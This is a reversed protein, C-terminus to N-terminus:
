VVEVPHEFRQVEGSDDKVEISLRMRGDVRMTTAVVTRARGQDIMPQLAEEAYQRAQMAVRELDKERKLLHLRSGFLLDAWYTGRPTSLRLYVENGLGAIRSGDYDATLPDIRSQM